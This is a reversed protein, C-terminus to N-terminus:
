LMEGECAEVVRVRPAMGKRKRLGRCVALSGRTKGRELLQSAVIANAQREDERCEQRQEGDTSQNDPSPHVVGRSYPGFNM